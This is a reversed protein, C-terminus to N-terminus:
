HVPLTIMCRQEEKANVAAEDCAADQQNDKVLNFGLAAEQWGKPGAIKMLAWRADWRDDNDM